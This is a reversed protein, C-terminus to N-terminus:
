SPVAALEKRSMKRYDLFRDWSGEIICPAGEGRWHLSLNRNDIAVNVCM